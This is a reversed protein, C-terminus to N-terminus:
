RLSVTSDSYAVVTSDGCKEGIRSLADANDHCRGPKYQFEIDFQQLFLLWRTLRGGVDKLGKLSTLPNHDTILKCPFRYVYPYFEKLAAVAALAEKETTSYNREAKQLKSSWYAIVWETGQQIQCLVAWIAFDSAYTHVFFPKKFDPYALIPPSILRVKLDDFASQCSSSWSFNKVGEKTLLKFLPEAIKSYDKVFRRCYNSLGMFQKLKKPVPYNSVAETKAPDPHVQIPVVQRLHM